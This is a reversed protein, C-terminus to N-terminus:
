MRTKKLHEWLITELIQKVEKRITKENENTQPFELKVMMGNQMASIEEYIIDQM